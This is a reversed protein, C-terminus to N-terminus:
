DGFVRPPPPPGNPDDRLGGRGGGPGGGFPMLYRRGEPSLTAALRRIFGGMHDHMNQDAQHLGELAADLAAPDFSEATLAARLREMAAHRAERSEDFAPRLEPILARLKAADEPPMRQAWRELFVDPSPREWRPMQDARPDLLPAAVVGVLFLNLAVSAGLLWRRRACPQSSATTPETM